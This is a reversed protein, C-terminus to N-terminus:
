GMSSSSSPWGALRSRPSFFIPVNADRNPYFSFPVPARRPARHRIAALKWKMRYILMPITCRAKDTGDMNPQQLQVGKQEPLTPHHVREGPIQVCTLMSEKTDDNKGRTSLPSRKKNKNKKCSDANASRATRNPEATLIVPPFHGIQPGDRAAVKKPTYAEFKM